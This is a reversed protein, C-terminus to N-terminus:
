KSEDRNRSQQAIGLLSFHAIEKNLGKIFYTNLMGKDRVAIKGRHESRFYDKVLGQTVESVNVQNAEGSSKMRSAINVTDGLIDYTFKTKGIVGTLVAGTHIGIRLRWPVENQQQQKQAFAQMELAACVAEIPNSKNENPIGGVAMYAGGITKIKQLGYRKIIEDFTTFYYALHTFLENPSMIEYFAALGEIEAFLVSVLDYTKVGAHGKLKLENVMDTPLLQSLLDNPKQKEKNNEVEQKGTPTKKELIKNAQEVEDLLHKVVASCFGKTVEAHKVVLNDFMDQTFELLLAQTMGSVSAPRPVVGLVAYAGITQGKQLLDFVQHEDHVRIIGRAVIYMTNGQQGKHFLTEKPNLEIEKLESAIESLIQEDANLFFDLTRLINVRESQTIKPILTNNMM